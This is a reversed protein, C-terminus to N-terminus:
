TAPSSFKIMVNSSMLSQDGRQKVQSKHSFVVNEFDDLKEM